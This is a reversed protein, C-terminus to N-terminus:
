RGPRAPQLTSRVLRVGLGDGSRTMAALPRTMASMVAGRLRGQRRGLGAGILHLAAASAPLPRFFVTAETIKGDPSLRLHEATEIEQGGAHARGILVASDGDHLEATYRLDRFVDLIVQTVAAIQDRGTFVLGDTFPSHLVADPAFADVAADLDRAEMAARLALQGQDSTIPPHDAAPM